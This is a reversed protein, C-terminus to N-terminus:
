EWRCDSGNGEIIQSMEMQLEFREMSLRFKWRCDSENGDKIQSMEMKLKIM